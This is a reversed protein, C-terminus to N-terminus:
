TKGFYGKVVPHTILYIILIAFITVIVDLGISLYENGPLNLMQRATNTILRHPYYISVYSALILGGTWSWTKKKYIVFAFLFSFIIQILFSITGLVYYVDDLTYWATAKYDEDSSKFINEYFLENDVAFIIFLCGVLLWLIILIKILKPKQDM